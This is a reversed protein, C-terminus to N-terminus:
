EAILMDTLTSLLKSSGTGVRSTHRLRFLSEDESSVEKIMCAYNISTLITRLKTCGRVIGFNIALYAIVYTKETVYM